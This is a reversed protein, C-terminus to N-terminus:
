KVLRYTQYGGDTEVQLFYIGNELNSTSLMASHADTMPVDLVKIGLLNYVGISHVTSADWEITLQDRFPNPYYNVTPKGSAKSISAPGQEQGTESLGTAFAGACLTLSFLLLFYIKKM